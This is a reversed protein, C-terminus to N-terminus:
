KCKYFLEKGMSLTYLSRSDGERAEGILTVIPPLVSVILMSM